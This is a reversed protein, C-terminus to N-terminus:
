DSKKRTNLGTQPYRQSHWIEMTVCAWPILPQHGNSTSALQEIEDFPAEDKVYRRWSANPNNLIADVTSREQQVLGRKYLSRLPGRSRKVRILEPLIGNMAQYVIYKNRQGNYIHYAPLALAFEILRRDHYPYRVDILARNSYFIETSHNLVSRTGLMAQHHGPRITKEASPLWTDPSERDLLSQTYPKLWPHSVSQRCRARIRHGAPIVTLLWSAMKFLSPTFPPHWQEHHYFQKFLGVLAAGMRGERLLDVLWYDWGQALEDGYMGTLVVRSGAQNAAQYLRERLLRYVDSEPMNPNYPWAEWNRLPWADDGPIHTAITNFHRNMIEIAPRENCEPLEDFIWSFTLLREAEPRSDLAMAAIAAVSASDYGGSMSVSIPTTARMRCLVSEKLLDLFHEAYDEERHYCLRREPDIDWYRWQHTKDISVSLIHAPPLESVHAFFTSGMQPPMIAYWRAITTENFDPSVALHALIAYPESAVVLVSPDLYYFLTRHGVADRALVVRQEVSDVIAIATPGLLRGFCDNGWQVFMRLALEADSLARDTRDTIGLASLLEGRNDLRGDFLIHYRGSRDSLPQLVGVDEPTVWFHQCGLGINNTAIMRCGDPGRHVLRSLMAKLTDSSIPEGKRNFILAFGSM